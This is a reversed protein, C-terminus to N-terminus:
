NHTTQETQQKRIKKGQDGDGSQIKITVINRDPDVMARNQSEPQITVELQFFEDGEIDDDNQLNFIVMGRDDNEEFEEVTEM